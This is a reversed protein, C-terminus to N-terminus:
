KKILYEILKGYTYDMTKITKLYKDIDNNCNGLLTETEINHKLNLFKNVIRKIIQQSKQKNPEEVTSLYSIYNAIKIMSISIYEHQIDGIM